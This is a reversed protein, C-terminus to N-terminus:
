LYTIKTAQTKTDFCLIGEREKDMQALLVGEKSWVGSSGVSQFNDCFGICNVMVVTMGYQKAIKPYHTMAKELGKEPKAVSALYISADLQHAEAAHNDQLSEYCIAPIIKEKEFDLVLQKKGEIFYPREDEHLQQKAYIQQAQNPQFTLMSIYIGEESKIPLGFGIIIKNEDSLQQFGALRADDKDMALDKALEPEYSTLSLEPFFIANAEQEVATHIFRQHTTINAQLNGKAPRVQALILIM